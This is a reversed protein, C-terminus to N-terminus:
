ELTIVVKGRAHGAELYRIAEPVESLSYRRDIVPTVKKSEMLERMIILDEKSSKALFFIVLKQSVFRSLVLAAISSALPGLMWRGASAGVPLYIGNRNL